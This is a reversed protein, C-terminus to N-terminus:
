DTTKTGDSEEIQDQVFASEADWWGTLAKRVERPIRAEVLGVRIIENLQAIYEKPLYVAVSEGSNDSM